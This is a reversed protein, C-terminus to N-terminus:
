EALRLAAEARELGGTDGVAITEIRDTTRRILGALVTGPGLELCVTVGLGVLLGVTETWRVPETLQRGLDRRIEESKTMPEAVVNGIVPFVASGITTRDLLLLFGTAAEAMLPSHFPGSVALPVPRRAGAERALRGALEVAAVDGSLVLQGPSNYNAIVVSAPRGLTAALASDRGVQACIELLRAEDLGLVAIMAGPTTATVAQMLRGRERVLRLGDGFSIAGAAVLAGFEGLSHGAAVVPALREGIRERLAALAAIGITLLAPQANATERLAEAPGSFCLEALDFGLAENAEAFIIRAALCRDYLDRGMGVAQAGQGPFVLAHKAM